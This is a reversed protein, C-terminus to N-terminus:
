QVPNRTLQKVLQCYVEDRMEKASVASSLLWRIEELVVTKDSMVGNHVTATAQWTAPRAPRAAEVAKDREGMVHQIVKFATVAEKQSHSLVLISSTIAQRQWEM